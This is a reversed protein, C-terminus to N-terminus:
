PVTPSLRVGVRYICAGSCTNSVSISLRHSSNISAGSSNLPNAARRIEYSYGQRLELDGAYTVGGDGARGAWVIKKRKQRTRTYSMMFATGIIYSYHKAIAVGHNISYRQL